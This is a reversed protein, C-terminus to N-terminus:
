KFIITPVGIKSYLISFVIVAISTELCLIVTRNEILKDNNQINPIIVSVIFVIGLLLKNTISNCVNYYSHVLWYMVGVTVQQIIFYMFKFMNRLKKDM